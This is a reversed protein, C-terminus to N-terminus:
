EAALNSSLLIIGPLSFVFNCYVMIFWNTKLAFQKAFSNAIVLMKRANHFIAFIAMMNPQINCEKARSM